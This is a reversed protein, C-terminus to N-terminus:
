VRRSTEIMFVYFLVHSMHARVCVCMFELIHIIFMVRKHTHTHPRTYYTQTCLFIISCNDTIFVRKSRIHRM